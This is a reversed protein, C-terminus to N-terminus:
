VCQTHACSLYLVLCAYSIGYISVTPRYATKPGIGIVANSLYARLSQVYGKEGEVLSFCQFGVTTDLLVALISHFQHQVYHRPRFDLPIKFVEFKWAQLPSGKASTQVMWLSSSRKAKSAINGM